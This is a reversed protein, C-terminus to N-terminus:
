RGNSIVVWDPSSETFQALASCRNSTPCSISGVLDLISGQYSPVVEATWSRGGNRTAVIYGKTSVHQVNSGSSIQTGSAWCDETTPCSVNTLDVPNPSDYTSTTWTVGGNATLLLRSMTNNPLYLPEVALCHTADACSLASILPFGSNDAPLRSVKWTAGDNTSYIAMAPGPKAGESNARPVTGVSICRGGVLCRLGYPYFGTPLHTTTWEKGSDTTVLSDFERPTSGNYNPGEFAVCRSATTCSLQAVGEESARPMEMATWSQGGNTTTYLHDTSTPSIPAGAIMCTNTSPCTLALEVGGIEDGPAPVSPTWTAGGDHTVEVVTQPYTLQTTGPPVPHASIGVAYCTSETPCTLSESSTAASSSVEWGPAVIDGTLKWPLASSSSSGLSHRPHSTPSKHALTSIGLAGLLAMVAAVLLFV